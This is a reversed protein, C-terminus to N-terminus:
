IILKLLEEVSAVPLSCTKNKCVYALTDATLRGQLLPLSSKIGGSLIKNPIYYNNLEKRLEENGPGTLAIEYCGYVEELLGISWNSYASGYSKMQPFVNALLQSAKDTYAAEEFYLGLKTLVRAMASNSSPIVNDLIEFKRVILAEATASTFYFGGRERDYFHAIATDAWSKAQYLWREEFTAEYLSIFAEAAFAHDDLFGPIAKGSGPAQHFLKGYPDSLSEQIFHANKLATNIYSNEGFIQYADVFAKLMLANWSTLQKNDLGPRVRKDRYRRLKEKIRQLYIEWEEMNFGSEEIWAESDLATKLINTHAEPWNGEPSMGFYHIFLPAEEGLLARFEQEEFTYYKGEVGESDADLACYFGGDAATMERDVWELTEHIVRSYALKPSQMWAECYLSVLQANDYLMKEFHPLQWGADVSYRAFGGGVHDYIGGAAIKQLTFHTHQLVEQDNALVGYRLLFLWNNPLPFKPARKYGGEKLDFLQKWPDVIAKLDHINYGEPIRNVPLQESQRIGQTLREAYDFAIDPKERWMDALQLLINTWDTTKFYTGGYIPRTDPLCICHLPWGGSQTMLQVATMYVQDIDPREERDVKISIFHQNMLSAVEDNEFSEREMVHCWHCAAYGISVLILKNEARAKQLAEEGWPYWAVPNHQHQLLYPSIEHQLKNPM